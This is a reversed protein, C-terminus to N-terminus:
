SGVAVSLRHFYPRTDADWGGSVLHAWCSSIRLARFKGETTDYEGPGLVLSFCLWQRTALTVLCTSQHESDLPEYCFM